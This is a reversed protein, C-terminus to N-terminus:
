KARRIYISGNFTSLTLEPGGGNITGYINNDVNIRYGGGQSRLDQVQRDQSPNTQIDFDTWIEGHGARMRATAKITAPLTVDVTGNQSGFSLPRGATVQRM